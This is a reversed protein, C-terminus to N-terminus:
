LQIISIYSIANYFTRIELLKNMSFDSILFLVEILRLTNRKETIRNKAMKTQPLTTKIIVM